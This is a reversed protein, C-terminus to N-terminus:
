IEAYVMNEQTATENLKLSLALLNTRKPSAHYVALLKTM